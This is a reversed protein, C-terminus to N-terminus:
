TMRNIRNLTYVRLLFTFSIRKSSVKHDELLTFYPSFLDDLEKTNWKSFYRLKGTITPDEFGEGEGEIFSVFFVGSPKMLLSIKKIQAPLDSKQLHILSSIAVINDYQQDIKFDQITTPYVKLGKKQAQKVLEEAPEICSVQYGLELLWCALAGAGSGIDLIEKGVGYRILLDPLISEFPIKDVFEDTENYFKNNVSTIIESFDHGEMGDSDRVDVNKMTTGKSPKEVAKNM